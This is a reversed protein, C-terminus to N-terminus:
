KWHNAKANLPIFPLNKREGCMKTDMKRAFEGFFYEEPKM